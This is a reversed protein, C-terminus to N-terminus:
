PIFHTDHCPSTLKVAQRACAGIVLALLGYLALFSFGDHPIRPVEAFAVGGGAALLILGCLVFATRAVKPYRQPILM